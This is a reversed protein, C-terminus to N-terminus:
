DTAYDVGIMITAGRHISLLRQYDLYRVYDGNMNPEMGDSCHGIGIYSYPQWRTINPEKFGLAVYAQQLSQYDEFVVWHGSLCPRIDCLSEDYEYRQVVDYDTM